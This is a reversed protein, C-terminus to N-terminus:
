KFLRINRVQRGKCSGMANGFIQDCAEQISFGRWLIVGAERYQAKLM